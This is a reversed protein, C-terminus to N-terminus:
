KRSLWKFYVAYQGIIQNWSFQISFQCSQLSVEFKSPGEGKTDNETADEDLNVFKQYAANIIYKESVRNALQM